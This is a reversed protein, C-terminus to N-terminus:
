DSLFAPLRPNRRLTRLAFAGRSLASGAPEGTAAGAPQGPEPEAQGADGAGQPPLRQGRVAGGAGCVQRRGAGRSGLARVWAM